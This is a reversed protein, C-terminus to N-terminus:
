SDAASWTANGIVSRLSFGVVRLHAIAGSLEHGVLAATLWGSGSIEGRVEDLEYQV